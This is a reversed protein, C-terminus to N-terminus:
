FFSEIDRNVAQVTQRISEQTCSCLREHETTLSQALQAFHKGVIDEACDVGDVEVPNCNDGAAKGVQVFKTM